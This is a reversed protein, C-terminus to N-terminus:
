ALLFTILKIHPAGKTMASVLIGTSKMNMSAGLTIRNTPVSQNLLYEAFRKKLLFLSTKSLLLCFNLIEISYSWVISLRFWLNSSYLTFVTSHFVVAFADSFYSVWHILVLPM